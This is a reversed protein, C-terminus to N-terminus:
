NKKTEEESGGKTSSKRGPGHRTLATPKGEKDFRARVCRDGEPCCYTGQEYSEKVYKISMESINHNLERAIIKTSAHEHNHLLCIGIDCCFGNWQAWRRFKKGTGKVPPKKNEM